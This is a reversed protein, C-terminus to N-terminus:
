GMGMLEKRKEPNNVFLVDTRKTITNQMQEWERIYKDFLGLEIGYCLYAVTTPSKINTMEALDIWSLNLNQINDKLKLIDNIHWKSKANKGTIFYGNDLLEHIKPVQKKYTEAYDRITIIHDTTTEKANSPEEVEEYKKLTKELERIEKDQIELIENNVKMLKNIKNFGQELLDIKKWLEENKQNNELVLLHESIETIQKEIEVFKELVNGNGNTSINNLLKDAFDNDQIIFDFMKRVLGM